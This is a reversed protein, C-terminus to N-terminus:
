SVLGIVKKLEIGDKLGQLYIQESRLSEMGSERPEIEDCYFKYAEPTIMAIFKDWLENHEERTKIFNPDKLNNDFSTEVRDWAFQTFSQKFTGKRLNAM